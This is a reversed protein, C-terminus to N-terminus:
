LTTETIAQTRSWARVSRLAAPRNARDLYNWSDSVVQEGWAHLETAFPEGADKWRADREILALGDEIKPVNYLMTGRIAEDHGGAEALMLDAQTLCVWALVGHVVASMPRLTDRRIPSVFLRETGHDLITRENQEIDGPIGIGLALLRLHMWEHHLHEYAGYPDDVTIYAGRRGQGDVWHGSTAGRAGPPRTTDGLPRFVNIFDGIGYRSEPWAGLLERLRDISPHDAPADVLFNALEGAADGGIECTGTLVAGVPTTPPVGWREEARTRFQPYATLRPRCLGFYGSM